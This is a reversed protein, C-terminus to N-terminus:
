RPNHAQRLPPGTMRVQDLFPVGLDPRRTRNQHTIEHQEWRLGCSQCDLRGEGRRTKTEAAVVPGGCLACADRYAERAAYDAPIWGDLHCGYCLGRGNADAEVQGGCTSCARGM